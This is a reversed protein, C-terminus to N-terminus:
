GTCEWGGGDICGGRKVIGDAFMLLLLFLIVCEVWADEDGDEDVDDAEAGEAGKGM